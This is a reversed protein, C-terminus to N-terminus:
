NACAEIELEIFKAKRKMIGFIGLQLMISPKFFLEGYPMTAAMKRYKPKTRSYKFNM